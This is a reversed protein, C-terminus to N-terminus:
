VNIEEKLELIMREIDEIKEKVDMLDRENLKSIIVSDVGSINQIAKSLLKSPKDKTDRVKVKESHEEYIKKFENKVSDNARVEDIERMTVKKEGLGDLVEEVIESEEEIFDDIERSRVIPKIQRIFRTMDNDPRAIMNAFGIYKVEERKEEDSILKIVGKLERLPGDVALERAIYYQKPANIAELFEVLLKAVELDDKVESVKKNVGKAYENITLLEREEIDEYMGILREIPGYGVKEDEGMQIQLELMKIQKASNEYDRDLIVAEFYNFEDSKESLNRLCTFRRNGDIIRGDNLVYGYQKQGLLQINKQTKDMADPNSKEIFSHIIKNYEKIDSKSIDDVGEENKYQSIWSAIRSNQDNYYLKDLRIKYVPYVDKIGDIVVNVKQDTEFVFKNKIGDNLLNM